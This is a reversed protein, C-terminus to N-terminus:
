NPIGNLNIRRQQSRMMQAGGPINVNQAMLRIWWFFWDSSLRDHAM